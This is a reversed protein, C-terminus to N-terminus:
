FEFPGSIPTIESTRLAILLYSIQCAEAGPARWPCLRSLAALGSRSYLCSKLNCTHSLEIHGSFHRGFSPEVNPWTAWRQATTQGAHSQLEWRATLYCEGISEGCHVRVSVCFTSKGRLVKGRPQFAEQLLESKKAKKNKPRYFM